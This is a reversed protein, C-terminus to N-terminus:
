MASGTGSCDDASSNDTTSKTDENSEAGSAKEGGSSDDDSSSSSNSSSRSEVTTDERLEEESTTDSDDLIMGHHLASRYLKTYYERASYEESEEEYRLQREEAGYNEARQEKSQSDENEANAAGNANKTPPGSVGYEGVKLAEFWRKIAEYDIVPRYWLESLRKEWNKRRSYRGNPKNSEVTQQSQAKNATKSSPDWAGQVAAAVFSSPLVKVIVHVYLKMVWGPCIIERGMQVGQIIQRAAEDTTLVAFPLKLVAPLHEMSNFFNTGQLPGPKAVTVLIGHQLLERRISTAFTSIFSKSASYAATTPGAVEGAVSSILLVRGGTGRYQHRRHVMRPILYRVLTVSTAINLDLLQRLDQWPARQVPGYAGRAANVVLM